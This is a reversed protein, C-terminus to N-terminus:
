CRSYCTKSFLYYYASTRNKTTINNFTYTSHKIEYGEHISGDYILRYMGSTPPCFSGYFFNDHIDGNVYAKDLIQSDKNKIGRTCDSRLPKIAM